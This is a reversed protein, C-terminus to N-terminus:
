QLVTAMLVVINFGAETLLNNQQLLHPPLTLSNNFARVLAHQSCNILTHL